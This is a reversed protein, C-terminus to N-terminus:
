MWNEIVEINPMLRGETEIAVLRIGENHIKINIRPVVVYQNDTKSKLWQGISHPSISSTCSEYLKLIESRPIKINNM